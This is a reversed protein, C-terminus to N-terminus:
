VNTRASTGSGLPSTGQHRRLAADIKNALTTAAVPKVLFDTAGVQRCRRVIEEYALGSVMIFPVDKFRPHSKLQDTVELGNAGPLNIDMLVIDLRHRSGLALLSQGSDCSHATFGEARLMESLVQRVEFDDDVVAVNIAARAHISM